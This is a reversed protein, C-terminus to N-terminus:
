SKLIVSLWENNDQVADSIKNTCHPCFEWDARVPERCYSCREEATVSGCYPCYNWVHKIERQCGKCIEGPVAISKM